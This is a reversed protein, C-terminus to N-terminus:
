DYCILLELSLPLYTTYFQTSIPLPPYLPQTKLNLLIVSSHLSKDGPIWPCKTFVLSNWSHRHV